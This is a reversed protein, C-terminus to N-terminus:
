CAPQPETIAAAHAGDLVPKTGYPGALARNRAAKARDAAWFPSRCQM